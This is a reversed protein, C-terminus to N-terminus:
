YGKKHPKHKHKHKKRRAAARRKAAARRRAAARRKAAAKAARSREDHVTADPHSSITLDVGKPSVVEMVKTETLQDLQENRKPQDFFHDERWLTFYTDADVILSATGTGGDPAPSPGNDGITVAPRGLYTTNGTIHYFGQDLLMRTGISEDIWSRVLNDGSWITLIGAAPEDDNIPASWCRSEVPGYQCDMRLDGTTTDTVIERGTTATMWRENRLNHFAIGHVSPKESNKDPPFTTDVITHQMQGAPVPTDPPITARAAAPMLLAAGLAAIFISSRPSM